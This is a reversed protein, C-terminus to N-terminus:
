KAFMGLLATAGVRVGFPIASLDVTFAPNHNYFPFEKGEAAAKTCLDPNAIGVFLFDYVPPNKVTLVLDPFDESVMWPPSETIIKEEPFFAKLAGNIKGVMGADNVVPGDTAKYLITPYLEEPLDYAMAIGRNVRDIGDIM